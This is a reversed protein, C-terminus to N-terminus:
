VRPLENCWESRHRGANDYGAYLMVDRLADGVYPSEGELNDIEALRRKVEGKIEYKLEYARLQQRTLNKRMDGGIGKDEM